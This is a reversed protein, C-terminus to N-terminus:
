RKKQERTTALCGVVGKCIYYLKFSKFMELIQLIGSKIKNAQNSFHLIFCCFKAVFGRHRSQYTIRM